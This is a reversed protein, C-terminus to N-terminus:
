GRTVRFKRTKKLGLHNTDGPYRVVVKYRGKALKGFGATAAGTDDLTRVKAWKGPKGIRKLRIRVTGTPVSDYVGKAKVGVRTAVTTTRGTVPLKIRTRARAVSLTQAATTSGDYTTPASPVFTATVSHAGPGADPLVLTAIGDKDVKAKTALGDVSFAVDGVPAGTSVTVRATANVDQGYESATKDLTLTTASTAVVTITDVAYPKGPPPVACTLTVPGGVDAGADTSFNLTAVFDGGSIAVAGPTSPATFPLAASTATFPVAAPPAQAPVPTSAIALSVSTAAGVSEQAVVSGDFRRAGLAYKEEALGAPLASALTAVVDAKDGTRMRTPANTDLVVTLDFTGAGSCRYAVPGSTAQADTTVAVLGLSGVAVTVAAIRSTLRTLPM